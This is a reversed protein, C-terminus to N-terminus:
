TVVSTAGTGQLTISFENMAELGGSLSIESVLVDGQRGATGDPLYRAKIIDGNQWATLANRVGQNLKTNTTHLWGFPRALKNVDPVNLMWSLSEEELEGVGGSQGQSTLRFFGRCFSDSNGEPNIEIIFEDRDLLKTLNANAAVYIGNTELSVRRLGYQYTRHGSNGQAVAYDTNDVAEATQTLTFGRAGGIATTAYWSMDVTVPGTVTYSQVFTVRGFLYDYSEINSAAVATGNDYVTVTASRNWIRRSVNTVQYTKGSVLSMAEGTAATSTGVIRLKCVYGAFGKYLANATISWGILGSENSQYEQGFITDVIEGAENRLEASNGPLTYWTTGNDSSLRVRKAAM